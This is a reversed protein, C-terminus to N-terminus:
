IFIFFQNQLTALSKSSSTNTLTLEQEDNELKKKQYVKMFVERYCLQKKVRLTVM